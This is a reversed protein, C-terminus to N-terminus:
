DPFPRETRRCSIAYRDFHDAWISASNLRHLAFTAPIIVTWVPVITLLRNYLLVPGDVGNADNMM